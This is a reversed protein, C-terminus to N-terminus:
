FLQSWVLARRTMQELPIKIILFPQHPDEVTSGAGLKIDSHPHATEGKFYSSVVQQYWSGDTVERM